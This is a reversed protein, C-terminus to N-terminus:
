MYIPIYAQPIFETFIEGDEFTIAVVDFMYEADDMGKLRIYRRAAKTIRRQKASNVSEQPPAQISSMRTKVEVFHIGKGESTIIDIELHGSRWNKELIRHGMQELMRCAIEEGQKGLDRRHCKRYDM